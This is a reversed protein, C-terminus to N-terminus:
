APSSRMWTGSLTSRRGPTLFQDPAEVIVDPMAEDAVTRLVPRYYTSEDGNRCTTAAGALDDVTTDANVALNGVYEHVHHPPGLRGPTVVVNATNRHGNYIGASRRSGTRTVAYPGSRRSARWTSALASRSRARILPVRNRRLASIVRFRSSSWGSGVTM